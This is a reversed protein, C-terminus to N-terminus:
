EDDQIKKDKNGWENLILLITGGVAVTILFKLNSSLLYNLICYWKFNDEPWKIQSFDIIYCYLYCVIFIIFSINLIIIINHALQKKIVSKNM